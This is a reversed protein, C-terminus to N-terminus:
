QLFLGTGGTGHVDNGNINKDRDTYDFNVGISPIIKYMKLTTEYYVSTSSTCQHGFQYSASNKINFIFNNTFIFGIKEKSFAASWQVMPSWSGKGTNFNEPLNRSHLNADYKGIPVTLGIGFDIFLFRNAKDKNLLTQNVLFRADALGNFSVKGQSDYRSNNSFALYSILNLNQKLNIKSTLGMQEFVDITRFGSQKGSEFFAKVYQVRLFNSKYDTMLGLGIQPLGSGCSECAKVGKTWIAMLIFIITSKYMVKYTKLLM